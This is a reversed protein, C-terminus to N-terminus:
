SAIPPARSRAGPFISQRAHGLRTAPTLANAPPPTGLAVFSLSGPLAPCSFLLDCYGCKAWLAHHDDPAKPHHSEGHDGSMDMDMSMSMPMSMGAHHDMPMAQSILPGIFIMLMAFLSIWSGRKVRHHPSLRARPAGM